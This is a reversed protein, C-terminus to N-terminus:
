VFVKAIIATVVTAIVAIVGREVWVNTRDTIPIKAELTGVRADLKELTKFARELSQAAQGQREEILALKTVAATLSRLGDKIDTVDRHLTEMRLNLVSFRGIEREVDSRHEEPVFPCGGGEQTPM